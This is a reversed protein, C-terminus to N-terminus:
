YEVLDAATIDAYEMLDEPNLVMQLGRAGGSVAIENYLVATEDIFTPYKKKMGVPSCGGRIYGTLGLLEKMHTMEVKKDGAAQAAKKLDLTCSVPICFVLIGQKEGRAVLTKFVQDPNMGTVAAVHEGGLDNEDYEYEVARYSVKGADLLRMANTKNL